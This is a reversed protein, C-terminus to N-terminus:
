LQWPATEVFEASLGLKDNWATYGTVQLSKPVLSLCGSGEGKPFRELLEPDKFRVALGTLDCSGSLTLTLWGGQESTKGVRQTRPQSTVPDLTIPQNISSVFGLNSTSANPTGTWWTDLGPPPNNGDFWPGTYDGEVLFFNDWYTDGGNKMGGNYLRVFAETAGSPLSFSFRIDYTGAVNPIAASDFHSYSGGLKYYVCIKRANSNLTGTQAKPLYLTAGATYTKGAVMGLRMAYQDGGPSNFSDNSTLSVPIQRLSHDGSKYWQTSWGVTRYQGAGAPNYGALVTSSARPTGEWSATLDPDESYDGAFFVDSFGGIAPVSDYVPRRIDLIDGVVQNPIYVYLLPYDTTPSATTAPIPIKQWTNTYTFTTSTALTIGNHIIATGTRGVLTGSAKVEVHGGYYVGVSAPLGDARIGQQALTSSSIYRIIGDEPATISGTAPFNMGWYPPLSGSALPVPNRIYNHRVETLVGASLEFSPNTARNVYDIRAGATNVLYAYFTYGPARSAGWAGVSVSSNAPVPIKYTATGAGLTVRATSTPFAWNNAATAVKDAPTLAFLNPGGDCALSPVALWQPLINTGQAFPDVLYFPGMGYTKELFATIKRVEDGEIDGWSLRYRRAGTASERVYAGGNLYEGSTGWGGPSRDFNNALPARVWEMRSDTGFWVERSGNPM